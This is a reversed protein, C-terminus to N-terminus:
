IYAIYAIYLNTTPRQQNPRQDNIAKIRNIMLGREGEGEGGPRTPARGGAGARAGAGCGVHTGDLLDGGTPGGPGLAEGDSRMSRWSGQAQQHCTVQARVESSAENRLLHPSRPHEHTTHEHEPVQLREPACQPLHTAGRIARPTVPVCKCNCSDAAPHATHGTSEGRVPARPLTSLARHLARPGHCERSPGVTVAVGCGGQFCSFNSQLMRFLRSTTSRAAVMRAARDGALHVVSLRYMKQFTGARPTCHQAQYTTHLLVCLLPMHEKIM